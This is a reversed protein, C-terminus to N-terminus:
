KEQYVYLAGKNKKYAKAWRKALQARDKQNVKICGNSHYNGSWSTRGPSHIYLETRTWAREGSKPSCKKKGLSWVPGRIVDNGWTKNKIYTLQSGKDLDKYGYVGEPIQGKGKVCESKIGSGSGGRMSLRYQTRGISIFATLRSDLTSGKSRAFVMVPIGAARRNKTEKYAEASSVPM